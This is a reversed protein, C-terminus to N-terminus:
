HVVDQKVGQNKSLSNKDKKSKYVKEIKPNDWMGKVTYEALGLHDAQKGFMRAIRDVLIVTLGGSAGGLLAGIVPLSSSLDPLFTISQDYDRAVLGTRGVVDIRGIPGNIYFNNTYADGSAFTFDGNMKDFRFGKATLDKFDLSLRRPITQLSILGFVRGGAGPELDLIQGSKFALSASGKLLGLDVEFPAGAWSIDFEASGTGDLIFDKYGVKEMGKGVNQSGVNIHVHTQQDGDARRLWEGDARVNLDPDNVILSHVKLGNQQPTSTLNVQALHWNNLLVKAASFRIPPLEAPNVEGSSIRDESLINLNLYDLQIDLPNHLIDKLPLMAVGQVPRTDIDIRWSDDERKLGLKAPKIHYGLYTFHEIDLHVANLNNIMGGGQYLGDSFLARWRDLDLQDLQGSVTMGDFPGFRASGDHLRIDAKKLRMEEADHTLMFKANLWDSYVVDLEAKSEPLFRSEIIAYSRAEQPKVFPAPLKFAIGELDSRITLVTDDYEDTKEHLPMHLFAEFNSEGEVYDHWNFNREKLFDRLAFVGSAKILATQKGVESNETTIELRVDRNNLTASTTLMEVFHNKYYVDSNIDAFELGWKPFKLRQDYLTMEGSYAFKHSLAEKLPISLKFQTAQYGVGEVDDIVSAFVERLPSERIFHLSDQTSALALFRLDLMSKRFDRIEAMVNTVIGDYVHGSYIDIFFGPGDFRARGSLDQAIPWGPKYLLKADEFEFEIRFVGPKDRFPFDSFRGKFEFEGEKVFVQKVGEELWRTLKESMVGVPLYQSKYRGDGNKFYSTMEFYPPMGQKISLGFRNETELHPLNLTMGASSVQIKEPWKIFHIEGSLVPVEIPNQFVRGYIIEVDRSNLNLVAMHHKLLLRGGLNSVSPIKGTGKLGLSEFELSLALNAAFDGQLDKQWNLTVKRIICKPEAEKLPILVDNSIGPFMQALPMWDEIRLSGTTLQLASMRSEENLTIAATIGPTRWVDAQTQLTLDDAIFIFGDKQRHLLFRSDLQRMQWISGSEKNNLKVNALQMQGSISKIDGSQIDIWLQMDAKGDQVYDKYPTLNLLAALYLGDGRIYGRGNWNKFGGTDWYFDMGVEFREGFQEPVQASVFLRHNNNQKELAVSLTQIDYNFGLIDDHYHITSQMLRLVKNNFFGPLTMAEQRVGGEANLLQGQLHIRNEKDRVITVDTGVIDIESFRPALSTLSGFLDVGIVIENMQLLPAQTEPDLIQVDVLRLLPTLYRWDAEIRSLVVTRGALRSARQEVDLKYDAAFPLVLRVISFLIAMLIIIGAILGWAAYWIKRIVPQM